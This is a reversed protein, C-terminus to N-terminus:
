ATVQAGQEPNDTTTSSQEEQTGILEKPHCRSLRIKPLGSKRLLDLWRAELFYPSVPFGNRTQVVLGHDNYETGNKEAKRRDEELVLRHKNLAEVTQQPLVITRIGAATKPEQFIHGVLGRTYSRRV